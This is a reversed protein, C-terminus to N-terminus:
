LLISCDAFFKYLILLNSAFILKWLKELIFENYRM